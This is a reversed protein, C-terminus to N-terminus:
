EFPRGEAEEIQALAAALADKARAEGLDGNSAALAAELQVLRTERAEVTSKEQDRQATREALDAELQAIRADREELSLAKSDRENTREALEDSLLQNREGLQQLSRQADDREASRALVDAEIAAIRADRAAESAQKQDVLALM